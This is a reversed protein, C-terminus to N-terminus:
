CPDVIGPLVLAVGLRESRKEPRIHTSWLCDLTAEHWPNYQNDSDCYRRLSMARIEVFISRHAPHYCKQERM